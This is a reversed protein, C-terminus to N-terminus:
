TLLQVWTVTQSTSITPFLAMFIFFMLMAEYDSFISQHGLALM